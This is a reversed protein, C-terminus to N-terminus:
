VKMSFYRKLVDFWFPAGFSAAFGSILVGLLKLIWADWRQQPHLVFSYQIGVPLQISKNLSDMKQQFGAIQKKTETINVGSDKRNALQELSVANKEYYNILSERAGPTNKYVGFLQVSDINIMLGLLAGLIFLRQRTKKKYWTTLRQTFEVYWQQINNVLNEYVLGENGPTQALAQMEASNMSQKLFAMVDSPKLVQIAKSFNALAPQDYAIEAAEDSMQVLQVNGVTEILSEAFLRPAIDNTPKDPARSLLDISGHLYLLSAWNIGNPEDWLQKHLYYKMFRGREAKIQAIAEHVLSCFIAFLAWSIIIALAISVVPLNFVNM